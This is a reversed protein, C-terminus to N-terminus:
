KLGEKAVERWDRDDAFVCNDINTSMGNEFVVYDVVWHRYCDYVGRIRIVKGTTGIPVKRGKVVKATIGVDIVKNKLMRALHATEDISVNYWFHDENRPEDWDYVCVSATEGTNINFLYAHEYSGHNQGTKRWGDAMLYGSTNEVSGKWGGLEIKERVATM